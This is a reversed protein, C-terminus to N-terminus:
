ILYYLGLYSSYYGVLLWTVFRSFMSTRFTVAKMKPKNEPDIKWRSLPLMFEKFGRSEKKGFKWQKKKGGFKWQKKGALNKNRSFHILKLATEREESVSLPRAFLFRNRPFFHWAPIRWFNPCFHYNHM